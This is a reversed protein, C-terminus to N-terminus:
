CRFCFELVKVCLSILAYADVCWLCLGFDFFVMSHNLLLYFIYFGRSPTIFFITSNITIILTAILHLHHHHHTSSSPPSPPNISNSSCMFSMFTNSMYDEGQYHLLNFPFGGWVRESKSRNTMCPYLLFHLKKKREISPWLM